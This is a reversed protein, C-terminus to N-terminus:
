WTYSYSFSMSSIDRSEDGAQSAQTLWLEPVRPTEQLGYFDRPESAAKFTTYATGIIIGIAAGIPINALRTQPRGYFSLTSLGLIGGAVGAFVINQIHRSPGAALSQTGNAPNAAAAWASPSGVSASAAVLALVM